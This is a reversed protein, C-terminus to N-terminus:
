STHLDVDMLCKICDVKLQIGGAYKVASYNHTSQKM